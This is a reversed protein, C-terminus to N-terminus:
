PSGLYCPIKTDAVIRERISKLAAWQARVLVDPEPVLCFMGRVPDVEVSCPVAYTEREGSTSYVPAELVVREPIELEGSVESKIARSISEGKRTQESTLAVGNDFKIRRVRDLLAEPPLTGALEVRLLRLFAKHELWEGQRTSGLKLLREWVASKVLPVAARDLRLRKADLVLEIKDENVFILADDNAAVDNTFAILAGVTGLTYAIPSPDAALKVAEGDVLYTKSAAAEVLLKPSAADTALKSLYKLADTLM